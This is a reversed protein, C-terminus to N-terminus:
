RRNRRMPASRMSSSGSCTRRPHRRRANCRRSRIACNGRRKRRPGVCCGRRACASRIWWGSSRWHASPPSRTTSRSRRRSARSRARLRGCGGLHAPGPEGGLRPRARARALSRRAGAARRALAVPHRRVHVRVAARGRAGHRLRDLDGARVARRGAPEPAHAARRLRQHRAGPARADAGRRDGRGDDRERKFPGFALLPGCLVAMVLATVLTFNGLMALPPYIMGTATDPWQYLFLYRLGILFCLGANAAIFWGLWRWIERRTVAPAGACDGRDGRRRRHRQARRQLGLREAAARCERPLPRSRAGARAGARAPPRARAPPLLAGLKDRVWSEFPEIGLAQWADNRSKFPLDIYIVPKELGMGYDQGAGSWDTIMVHSDLLSDREAMEEVLAFRPNGRHKAVIRDIVEPMKWRTQFHPRLTLRFGADLIADAIEMGCVPLITQPGWSPALLVHTDADGTVPPPDRRSAIMEDLRGYGHPVLRKPPLGQM